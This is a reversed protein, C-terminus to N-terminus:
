IDSELEFEDRELMCGVPKSLLGNIHNTFELGEGFRVGYYDGNRIVIIGRYLDGDLEVFKGSKNKPKFDKTTKIIDGVFVRDINKRM